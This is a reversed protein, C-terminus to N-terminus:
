ALYVIYSLPIGALFNAPFPCPKQPLAREIMRLIPGPGVDLYSPKGSTGLYVGLREEIEFFSCASSVNGLQKAARFHIAASWLLSSSCGNNLTYEYVFNPPKTFAFVKPSAEKNHSDHPAQNV